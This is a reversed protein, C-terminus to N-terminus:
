ATAKAAARLKAQAEREKAFLALEKLTEKTVINFPRYSTIRGSQTEFNVEVGGIRCGERQEREGLEAVVRMIEDPRIGSDADQALTELDAPTGSWGGGRQQLRSREAVADRVAQDAGEFAVLLSRRQRDLDAIQTTLEEKRAGSKDIAVSYDRIMAERRAQRAAQLRHCLIPKISELEALKIKAATLQRALDAVRGDERDHLFGEAMAKTQQGERDLIVAHTATIQTDLDTLKDMLGRADM